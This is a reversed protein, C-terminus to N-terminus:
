SRSALIWLAGVVLGTAVKPNLNAERGWRMRRAFEAISLGAGLVWWAAQGVPSSAGGLATLAHHLRERAALTGEAIGPASPGGARELSSCHLTEFNARTFDNQFKEAVSQVLCEWDENEEAPADPKKFRGALIMMRITDVSRHTRRLEGEVLTDIQEFSTHQLRELTPGDDSNPATEVQGRM